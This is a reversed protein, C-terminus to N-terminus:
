PKSQKQLRLLTQYADRAIVDGNSLGALVEFSDGDQQGLRVQNLVWKDNQQLYDGTLDNITILASEPIFMTQRQGSM